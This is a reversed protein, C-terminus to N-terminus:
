LTLYRTTRWIICTQQCYYPRSAQAKRMLYLSLNTAFHRNPTNATLYNFANFICREHRTSLPHDKDHVISAVDTDM